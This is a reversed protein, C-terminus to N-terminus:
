LTESLNTPPAGGCGPATPFPSRSRSGETGWRAASREVHRHWNTRRQSFIPRVDAGRKGRPPAPLRIVNSGGGASDIACIQRAMERIASRGASLRPAPMARSASRKSISGRSPTAGPSSATTRAAGTGAGACIQQARSGGRHPRAGFPTRRDGRGAHVARHGAAAHHLVGAGAARIAELTLYKGGKMDFIGPGFCKNGERRWQLKAIRASPTVTDLHGAILIGTRRNRIRFPGARLRCFRAPRQHARDDCGHDGDRACCDLMREVAGADWTPSECEVWGRLGQLMAESDFPLNAPNM